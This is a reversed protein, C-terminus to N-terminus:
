DGIKRLGSRGPALITSTKEHESLGGPITFFVHIQDNTSLQRLSMTRMRNKRTEAPIEFTCKDGAVYNTDNQWNPGAFITVLGPWDLYTLKKDPPANPDVPELEVPRDLSSAQKVGLRSSAEPETHTLKGGPRPGLGGATNTLMSVDARALSGASKPALGRAINTSTGAETRALTGASKPALGGATNTTAAQLSQVAAAAIILAALAAQIQRNM